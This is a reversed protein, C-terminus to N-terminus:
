VREAVPVSDTEVNAGTRIRTRMPLNLLLVSILICAGGLIQMEKISENLFLSALMIVTIPEITSLIAATSAGIMSIGKFMLIIPLVTAIAGLAFLYFWGEATQPVHLGLFPILILLSLLTGTMSIVGSPLGSSRNYRGAVILYVAYAAANFIPFGVDLWDDIQIPGSVTLACGVLALGVAVWKNIPLFEGLVFSLVAVMAPYTYILLTYTSAPVRELAMASTVASLSFLAGLGLLVWMQQRSVTGLNQGSVFMVPWVLAVAFAFRWVAVDMAKLTEVDYILRIFIPLCAYMVASLFVLLMGIIQQRSVNIKVGSVDANYCQPTLLGAKAYFNM